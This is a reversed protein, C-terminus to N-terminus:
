NVYNEVKGLLGDLNDGPIRVEVGGLSWTEKLEKYEQEIAEISKKIIGNKSQIPEEFANVLQIPHGKERLICLVYSPPVNGNM